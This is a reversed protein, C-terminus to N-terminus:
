ILILTAIYRNENEQITGDWGYEQISGDTLQAYIRITMTSTGSLFIAGVSSHSAVPFNYGSLAGNYWGSNSDHATEQLTNNNTVSYVRM